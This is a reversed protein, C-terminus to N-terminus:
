PTSLATQGISAESKTTEEEEEEEQEEDEQERKKTKKKKKQQNRPLSLGGARVRLKEPTEQRLDLLLYSYPERIADAYVNILFKPNQPFIQVALHRIQSADRPNKMLVIYSANLSRTRSQSGKQFLNQTLFIVTVHQHHSVKTFLATVLKNDEAEAMLDDVVVMSNAPLTDLLSEPLGEVLHVGHEQGLAELRQQYQGYCWYIESPPVDFIQLRNEILREMFYSKGSGSPGAILISSDHKLRMDHVERSRNLLLM